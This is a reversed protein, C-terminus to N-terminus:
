EHGAGEYYGSDSSLRKIFEIVKKTQFVLQEKRTIKPKIPQCSETKIVETPEVEKSKSSM